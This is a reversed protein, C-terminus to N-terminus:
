KIVVKPIITENESEFFVSIQVGVYKKAAMIYAETLKGMAMQMPMDVIDFDIGFSREFPVSGKPTTFIFKLREVEESNKGLVIPNAVIM